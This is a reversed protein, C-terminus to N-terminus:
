EVTPAPEATKPKAVPDPTSNLIQQNADIEDYIENVKNQLHITWLGLIFVALAIISWYLTQRTIAITLFPTTSRTLKFSEMENTKAAKVRTTKARSPAAKKTTAKKAPAKKAATKKTAM